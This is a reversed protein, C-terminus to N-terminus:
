TWEPEPAFTRTGLDDEIEHQLAIRERLRARELGACTPCYTQRKDSNYINLVHGMPCEEGAGTRVWRKPRPNIKPRARDFERLRPHLSLVEAYTPASPLVPSAHHFPSICQVDHCTRILGEIDPRGLRLWLFHVISMRRGSSMVRPLGGAVPWDALWHQHGHADPSSVRDLTRDHARGTTGEILVLAIEAVRWEPIEPLLHQLMDELRARPPLMPCSCHNRHSARHPQQRAPM